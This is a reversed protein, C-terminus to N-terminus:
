HKENRPVNWNDSSRSCGARAFCSGAWRWLAQTCGPIITRNGPAPPIAVLTVIPGTAARLQQQAIRTEAALTWCKSGRSQASNFRRTTLRSGFWEQADERTSVAWVRLCVPVWQQFPSVPWPLPMMHPCPNGWGMAPSRCWIPLVLEGDGRQVWLLDAGAEWPGASSERCLWVGCGHGEDGVGMVFCSRSERVCAHMYFMFQM